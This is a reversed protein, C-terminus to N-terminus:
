CIKKTRIIQKLCFSGDSEEKFCAPGFEEVLRWKCDPAFRAHVHIGGPFIRENRLDPYPAIRKAFTKGTETLQDMRDLKSLIGVLRDIKM